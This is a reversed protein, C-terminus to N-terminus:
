DSNVVVRTSVAQESAQCVPWGGTEAEYVIVLCGVAQQEQLQLGNFLHRM